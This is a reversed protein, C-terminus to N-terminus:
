PFRTTKAETDLEPEQIALRVPFTVRSTVSRRNAIAPQFIASQIIRAALQNVEHYSTLKELDILKVGGVSDIELELTVETSRQLHPNRSLLQQWERSLKRSLAGTNTLRPACGESRGVRMRLPDGFDIRLLV